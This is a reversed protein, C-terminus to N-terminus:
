PWYLRMPNDILLKRQLEATPAILPIRDVLVGDDPAEKKMNPHPWDTGWLVRDPFNEVLTKAFPLADDFPSGAKTLREPGSTKVWFNDRAAMLDLFRQNESHHVGKTVDTLMNPGTTDPGFCWIKKALDKDWGFEESLIKARAKPDDRPGVKGEDIAEALGDEM